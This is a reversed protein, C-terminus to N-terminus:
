RCKLSGGKREAYWREWLHDGLIERDETFRHAQSRYGFPAEFRFGGFSRLRSLDSDIQWRIRFPRGVPRCTIEM